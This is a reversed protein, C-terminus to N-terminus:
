PVILVKGRIRGTEGYAHAEALEGLAFRRDIVPRVVGQDVLAALAQLQDARTKKVVTAADRCRLKGRVWFGAVGLGTVVAGLNPGFTETHHPLGSVISAV